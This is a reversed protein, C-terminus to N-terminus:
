KTLYIDDIYILGAGDAVPVDRDGLGIFMTKVAAVDVGADRFTGLPIQWENWKTKRVIEPDSHVVVASRGASDALAVYLPAAGNSREGRVHLV